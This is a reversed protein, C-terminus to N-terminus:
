ATFCCTRRAASRSCASPRRKPLGTRSRVTTRGPRVQAVGDVRSLRERVVDDAFNTLAELSQPGSLTVDMIPMANIDFKLITPPDADRPLQARIGDVKDKVDLSAMDPDVGLEFEVVVTSVNDQSFSQLSKVNAITSIADEVRETVQTEVEEPGAGPYVTTVTVYPFEINPLLDVGLGFYSFAGLIVLAGVIMSTLVPRQVALRAFFRFM